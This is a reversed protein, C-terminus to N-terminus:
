LEPEYYDGGDEELEPTRITWREGHCVEDIAIEKLEDPLNSGRYADEVCGIHAYVDAGLEICKEDEWPRILDSCYECTPYVIKVRSM